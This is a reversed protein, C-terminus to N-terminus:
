KTDAKTTFFFGLAFLIVTWSYLGFSIGFLYPSLTSYTMLYFGVAGFVLAGVSGGIKQSKDGIVLSGKLGAASLYVLLQGFLAAFGLGVSTAKGLTFSMVIVLIFIISHKM